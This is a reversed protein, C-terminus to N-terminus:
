LWQAKLWDQKLQLWQLAILTPAHKILGKSLYDFAKDTSMVHVAINEGEAPCGHIGGAQSADVRGCFLFMKETSAAPSSWYEYIPLLTSVILGAEEQTERYATTELSETPELVGGVIEILWPSDSSPSNRFAIDSVQLKQLDVFAGARFQEILVVQNLRPDFLLVAVAPYRIVIERQAAQSWGGEFLRNRLVLQDVQYFGQYTTHQKLIEVDRTTFKLQLM